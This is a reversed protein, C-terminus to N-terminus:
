LRQITNVRKKHLLNAQENVTRDGKNSSNSGSKEGQGATDASFIFDRQHIKHPTKDHEATIRSLFTKKSM